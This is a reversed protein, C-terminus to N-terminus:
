DPISLISVKGMESRNIFIFNTTKQKTKVGGGVGCVKKM